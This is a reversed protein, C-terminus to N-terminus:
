RKDILIPAVAAVNVTLTPFSGQLLGDMVLEVEAPVLHGSPAVNKVSVNWYTHSIRRGSCSTDDVPQADDITHMPKGIESDILEIDLVSKTIESNKESVNYNKSWKNIFSQRYIKSLMLEKLLLDFYSPHIFMQGDNFYWKKEIMLKVFLCKMVLMHESNPKFNKLNLQSSNLQEVFNVPENGLCQEENIESRIDNDKVFLASDTLLIEDM